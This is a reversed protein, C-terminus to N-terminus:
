IGASTLNHSLDVFTTFTGSYTGYTDNACNQLFFNLYTVATVNNSSVRSSLFTDAFAFYMNLTLVYRYYLEVNVM